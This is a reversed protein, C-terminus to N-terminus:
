KLFKLKKRTAAAGAPPGDEKLNHGTGYTTGQRRDKKDDEDKQKMKKEISRKKKTSLRRQQESNYITRHARRELFLRTAGNIHIHPFRSIFTNMDTGHVGVCFAIRCLLSKTISFNHNKPAYKAISNNM